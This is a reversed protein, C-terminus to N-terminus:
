PTQQGASHSKAKWSLNQEKYHAIGKQGTRKFPHFINPIVSVCVRTLGSIHLKWPPLSELRPRVLESATYKHHLTGTNVVDHCQLCCHGGFRQVRFWLGSLRSKFQNPGKRIFYTEYEYHSIKRSKTNHLHRFKLESQTTLIHPCFALLCTIYGYSFSIPFSRSTSIFVLKVESSRFM